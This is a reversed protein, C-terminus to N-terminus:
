EIIKKIKAYIISKLARELWRDCTRPFLKETYTKAVKIVTMTINYKDDILWIRVLM